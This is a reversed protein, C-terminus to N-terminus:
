MEKKLRRFDGLAKRGIKIIKRLNISNVGGQRPKFSIERFTINERYYSFYTTMMINPLNYDRPLKKIYKKILSAKMLRFPANADPIKVGFILRLLLCVMNEIIKRSFGDGRVSRKGIIADYENRLEWFADFEAPDTQGDADTQFIYDANKDIAHRYGYLVTSGHGGNKKKLATLLPFQKELQCLIKWTHDTSGDNVVVLRSLGNGNYKKIIPYWERITNEINDEENYAPIIIYLKEM